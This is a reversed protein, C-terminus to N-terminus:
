TRAGTKSVNGEAGHGPASVALPVPAAAVLLVGGDGHGACEDVDHDTTPEENARHQRPHTKSAALVRELPRRCMCSPPWTWREIASRGPLTRYRGVRTSRAPRYQHLM